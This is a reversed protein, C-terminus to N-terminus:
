TSIIPFRIWFNLTTNLMRYAKSGPVFLIEGNVVLGLGLVDGFLFSEMLLQAVAVQFVTHCQPDSHIVSIYLAAAMGHWAM